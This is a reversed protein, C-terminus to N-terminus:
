NTFEGTKPNVTYWALSGTTESDNVSVVYNGNSDIAQIKFYVGDSSGWDKKVIDIVKEESNDSEIESDNNPSVNKNVVENKEEPVSNQNEVEETNDEINNEIVNNEIINNEIVNNDEQIVNNNENMGMVENNSKNNEKKFLDTGGIYAFTIATGIILIIVIVLIIKLKKNM